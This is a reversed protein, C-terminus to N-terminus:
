LERIVKLYVRSGILHNILKFVRRYLFNKDKKHDFSIRIGEKTIEGDGLIIGILEALEKSDELKLKPVRMDKSYGSFSKQGLLKLNNTNFNNKEIFKFMSNLTSRRPVKKMNEIRLITDRSLDLKKSLESQSLNLKKRIGLIIKKWDQNKLKLNNIMKFWM